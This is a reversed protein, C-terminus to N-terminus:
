ATHSGFGPEISLAPFLGVFESVVAVEGAELEAGSEIGAAPTCGPKVGAGAGTM